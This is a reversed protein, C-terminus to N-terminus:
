GEMLKVVAFAVDKNVVDKTVPIPQDFSCWKTKLKLLSHLSLM